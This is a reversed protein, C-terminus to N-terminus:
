LREFYNKKFLNIQILNVKKFINNKIIKQCLNIKFWKNNMLNEYKKKM